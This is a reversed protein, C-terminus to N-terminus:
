RSRGGAGHRGLVVAFTPLVQQPTDHSNETTFALEDHADSGGAGVGLAYLLAQSSTWSIAGPTAGDSSASISPCPVETLPADVLGSCWM